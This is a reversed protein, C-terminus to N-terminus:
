RPDAGHLDCAPEIGRIFVDHVRHRHAIHHHGPINWEGRRHDIFACFREIRTTFMVSARIHLTQERHAVEHVGQAAAADVGAAWARKVVGIPMGEGSLEIAPERPARM